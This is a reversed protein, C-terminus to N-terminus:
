RPKRDFYVRRHRYSTLISRSHFRRLELRSTFDSSSGVHCGVEFNTLKCTRLCGVFERKRCMCRHRRDSAAHIFDVEVITLEFYIKLLIFSQSGKSLRIACINTSNSHLWCICKIHDAHGCPVERIIRMQVILLCLVRSCKTASM